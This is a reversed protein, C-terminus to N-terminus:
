GENGVILNRPSRRRVIVQSQIIDKLHRQVVKFMFKLIMDLLSYFCSSGILTRSPKLFMAASAIFSFDFDVCSRYIAVSYTSSASFFPGSCQRGARWTACCGFGHITGFCHLSIKNCWPSRAYIVRSYQEPATNSHTM